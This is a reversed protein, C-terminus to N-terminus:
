ALEIERVVLQTARQRVCQTRQTSEGRQVERVVFEGRQRAKQTTKGIQTHQTQVSVAELVTEFVVRERTLEQLCRSVVIQQLIQALVAGLGTDDVAHTQQHDAVVLHTLAAQHLAEDVLRVATALQRRCEGFLLAVLGLRQRLALATGGGGQHGNGASPKQPAGARTARASRLEAAVCASAAGAHGTWSRERSRAATVRPLSAGDGAGAIPRTGDSRVDGAERQSGLVKGGAVTVRHLHVDGLQVIM